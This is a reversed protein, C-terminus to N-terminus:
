RHEALYSLQYLLPSFIRTDSTRNRGQGSLCCLLKPRCHAAPQALCGLPFGLSESRGAAKQMRPRSGGAERDSAWGIM